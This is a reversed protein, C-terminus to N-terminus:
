NLNNLKIFDEVLLDEFISLPLSEYNNNASYRSIFKMAYGSLEKMNDIRNNKVILGNNERIENDSSISSQNSHIYNVTFKTQIFKTILPIFTFPTVFNASNAKEIIGFKYLDFGFVWFNLSFFDPSINLLLEFLKLSAAKVNLDDRFKEGSFIQVIEFIIVPLMNKM